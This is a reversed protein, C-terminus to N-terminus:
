LVESFTDVSLAYYLLGVKLKLTKSVNKYIHLNINKSM